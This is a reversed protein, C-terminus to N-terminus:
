GSLAATAARCFEGEDGAGLRGVVLGAGCRTGHLTVVVFVACANKIVAVAAAQLPFLRCATTAAAGANRDGAPPGAVLGKTSFVFGAVAPNTM